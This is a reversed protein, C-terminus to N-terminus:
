VWARCLLFFPKVKLFLGNGLGSSECSFKGVVQLCVKLSSSIRSTHKQPSFPPFPKREKISLSPKGLLFINPPFNSHVASACTIAAAADSTGTWGVAVSELSRGIRRSACM